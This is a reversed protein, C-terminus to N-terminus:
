AFVPDRRRALIRDIAAWVAEDISLDEGRHEYLHTLLYLVAAAIEGPVTAPTWAPDARPELYRYITDNAHALKVTIEADHDLDTIRLHEKATAFTVLEPAIPEPEPPPITATPDLEAILIAQTNLLAAGSQSVYAIPLEVYGGRDVAIGTTLFFAAIMHDNKDQLILDAGAPTQMLAYYADIGDSTQYRIWARAAATYPYAADLRVQNGTPPETVNTSYVYQWLFGSM